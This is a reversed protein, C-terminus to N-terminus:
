SWKLVLHLSVLKYVSTLCQNTATQHLEPCMNSSKLQWILLSSNDSSCIELKFFIMKLRLALRNNQNVRWTDHFRWDCFTTQTGKTQKLSSNNRRRGCKLQSQFQKLLGTPNLVFRKWIFVYKQASTQLYVRCKETVDKFESSKRNRFPCLFLRYSINIFPIMAESKQLITPNQFKVRNTHLYM